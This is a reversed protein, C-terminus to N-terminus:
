YTKMSLIFGQIVRLSLNISLLRNILAEKKKDNSIKSENTNNIM